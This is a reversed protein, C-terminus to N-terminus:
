YGRQERFESMSNCSKRPSAKIPKIDDPLTGKVIKEIIGETKDFTIVTGAKLSKGIDEVEVALRITKTAVLTIASGDVNEVHFSVKTADPALYDLTKKLEAINKIKM